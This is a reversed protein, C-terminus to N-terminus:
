EKLVKLCTFPWNKSKIQEVLLVIKIHRSQDSCSAIKSTDFDWFIHSMVLTKEGRPKGERIRVQNVELPEAVGPGSWMGLEEWPQFLEQCSREEEEKPHISGGFNSLNSRCKQLWSLRKMCGWWISHMQHTESHLLITGCTLPGYKVWSRSSGKSLSRCEFISRLVSKEM